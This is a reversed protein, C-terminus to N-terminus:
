QIEAALGKIRNLGFCRFIQFRGGVACTPHRFQEVLITEGKETEALITVYDAQALSHYMPLAIGPAGRGGDVAREVLTVWPSLVTRTTRAIYPSPRMVSGVIGTHM